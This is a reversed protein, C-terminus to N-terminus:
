AAAALLGAAWREVTHDEAFRIGRVQNNRSPRLRLWTGRTGAEEVPVIYVQDLTPCYVAFIDARGRYDQPGRGHDTSASNFIVCDGRERGSKCQVRLFSEGDASVVLDYPLHHAWPVFVDLGLQIFENLVAAETVEGRTAVSPFRRSAGSSCM